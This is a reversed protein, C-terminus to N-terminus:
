HFNNSLFHVADVYGRKSSWEIAEELDASHVHKCIKAVVDQKSLSIARLLPLSNSCEGPANLLLDVAAPNQCDLAWTLATWGISSHMGAEYDLLVSIIDADGRKAAHMLATCGLSDQMKTEHPALLQVCELHGNIVALMLATNGHRDQQRKQKLYKQVAKVDGKIAASMLLTHETPPLESEFLSKIIVATM